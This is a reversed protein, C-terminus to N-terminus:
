GKWARRSLPSEQFVRRWSRRAPRLHWPGDLQVSPYSQRQMLFGTDSQPSDLASINLFCNQYYNGMNNAEKEWDEVSDQIICLSDIWIYQIDLRRTVEIADRYTAPLDSLDIGDRFDNMTSLTTRSLPHHGQGWCHSLATYREAKAAGDVLRPRSEGVDIVRTPLSNLDPPSCNPHHEICTAIWNQAIAWCTTSLPHPQVDHLTFLSFRYGSGCYPTESLPREDMKQYIEFIRSRYSFDIIEVSPSELRTRVFKLTTERFIHSNQAILQLGIENYIYRCITCGRSASIRLSLIDYHQLQKRPTGPILQPMLGWSRFCQIVDRCKACFYTRRETMFLPPPQM